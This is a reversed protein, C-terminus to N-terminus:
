IETIELDDKIVEVMANFSDTNSDGFATEEPLTAQQERLKKIALVKEEETRM